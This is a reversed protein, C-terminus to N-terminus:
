ESLDIVDENKIVEYVYKLVASMDEDKLHPYM